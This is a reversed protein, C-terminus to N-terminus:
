LRKIAVSGRGKETFSYIRQTADYLIRARSIDKKSLPFLIDLAESYEKKRIALWTKLYTFTHDGNKNKNSILWDQFRKEEGGFLVVIAKKVGMCESNNTEINDPAEKGPSVTCDLQVSSDIITIQNLQSSPITKVYLGWYLRQLDNFSLQNFDKFEKLDINFQRALQPQKDLKFEKPLKFQDVLIGALWALKKSNESAHQRFQKNNLFTQFEHRWLERMLITFARTESEDYATQNALGLSSLSLTLALFSTKLIHHIIM